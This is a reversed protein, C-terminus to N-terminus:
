ANIPAAFWKMCFALCAPGDVGPRGRAAIYGDPRWLFFVPRSQGYGDSLQPGTGNQANGNGNGNGNGGIRRPADAVLWIRIMGGARDSLQRFADIFTELAHIQAGNSGPELLIFLSFSAPDHLDFLRAHTPVKGLPGELIEVYADPARDGAQAGGDLLRDFCLPGRRYHVSLESIGRRAANRVPGLATLLPAIRDRVMMLWGREAMGMRTVFATQRLVDREIPHREAHYTELLRLPAGRQILALKWALNMSEQIGTNMGQAGAPSHIHAADGALLVRGQNLSAVMRSHIAFRSSWGLSSLTVPRAIRSSVIRQCEELTPAVDHQSTESIGASMAAAISEGATVDRAGPERQAGPDGNRGNMGKTGADAILRYRGGGLPFIATLGEGSLFIHFEDDPLDWEVHLDALVFGQEITDGEFRAGLQHRVISHAGDTGVLWAADITEARGDAHTVVASVSQSSQEFSAFEVGREVSSGLAALAQTLVHETESQEVFLLFPYRSDLPDFDIRIIRRKGALINGAHGRHGAALLADVVRHQELLELTRAQVGIARSGSAPARARDILRFPVKWRALCLALALGTPGAGVILVETRSRRPGASHGSETPISSERSFESM